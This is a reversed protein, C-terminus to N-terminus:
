FPFLEAPHWNKLGQHFFMDAFSDASMNNHSFIYDGEAHVAFDMRNFQVADLNLSGGDFYIGNDYWSSYIKDYPEDWGISSNSINLQSNKAYINGGPRRSNSIEVGNLIVESDRLWLAASEPAGVIPYSSVNPFSGGRIIDVHNLQSISNNFYIGGFWSNDAGSIIVPFEVTGQANLTGDVTLLSYPTFLLTAGPMLTLTSSASVTASSFIFPTQAQITTDYDFVVSSGYMASTSNGIFTNGSSSHPFNGAFVAPYTHPFIFDSFISNNVMAHPVDKIYVGQYGGSLHINELSVQGGNSWIYADNDSTRSGADYSNHVSVHDLDLIGGDNRVLESVSQSTPFFRNGGYYMDAYQAKFLGGSQVHIGQWDGAAPEGECSALTMFAECVQVTQPDRRSTMIIHHDQAGSFILSGSVSFGGADFISIINSGQAFEVTYGTPIVVNDIIYPSHEKSFVITSTNALLNNYYLTVNSPIYWDTKNDSEPSGYVDGCNNSRVGYRLSESTRWNTPWNGPLASNVREMPRFVGISQGGFWGAQQDTEDVINSESDKLTLHAGSDSLSVGPPFLSNSQKSTIVKENREVLYYGHGAISGALPMSFEENEYQVQLTWGSVDMPVDSPNYLEIWEDQACKNISAVGMWAIENIVVTKPWDVAVSQDEGSWLSENGAKDYAKVRMYYSVYRDVDTMEYSTSTTHSLLKQWESGSGNKYEIDFYAIGTGSDTSTWESHLTPTAFDSQVLQVIPQTPPTSDLNIVINAGSIPKGEGDEIHLSFVNEGETLVVEKRWTTSSAYEVGDSSGNIFIKEVSVSKDGEFTTTASNTIWPTETPFSISFWPEEEGSEANSSEQTSDSSSNPTSSGGGGGYSPSVFPSIITHVVEEVKEQIIKIGHVIDDLARQDKEVITEPKWEEEVKKDAIALNLRYIENGIQEYTSGTYRVIMLQLGYNGVVDPTHVIFSFSATQGSIVMAQDMLAPRLSTLWTAHKFQVNKEVGGIVNLSVQDSRNWATKGTNKVSIKLAVDKGPESTIHEPTNLIDANYVSLNNAEEKKEEPKQEPINEIKEGEVNQQESSFLSSFFIKVNNWLSPSPSQSQSQSNQIPQNEQVGLNKNLEIFKSPSYRHPAYGTTGSYGKGVGGLIDDQFAKADKVEFHLHADYICLKAVDAIIDGKKVIDGDEVKINTLHGYLSYVVTPNNETSATIITGDSSFVDPNVVEHKIIVVGGWGHSDEVKKRVGDIIEVKDCLAWRVSKVVEGNAISKVQTGADVAFDEGLHGVYKDTYKAGFGNSLYYDSLPLLMGSDVVSFVLVPIFVFLGVFFFIDRRFM